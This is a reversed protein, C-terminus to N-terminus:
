AGRDPTQKAIGFSGLEFIARLCLPTRYHGGMDAHCTDVGTVGHENEVAWCAARLPRMRRGGNSAAGAVSTTHAYGTL